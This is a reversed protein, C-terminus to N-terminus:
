PRLTSRLAIGDAWYAGSPGAPLVDYTRGRYPLRELAAVRSGDLADGIALSGIARGDAIPHGPSATLGRGDALTLRIVEHGAPAEVSSAELLPAAVRGGSAGLTWVLDGARLASVPVSGRPTDIRTTSALCIPCNPAAAVDRKLVHVTGDAIVRLEVREGQKDASAPRILLITGYADPGVPQLDVRKLDKWDHYVALLQADTLPVGPPINNHRLIAPWDPDAQLQAEHERALDIEEARAIPYFDPDCYWPRGVQEMVRYELEVVPLRSPLPTPPALPGVCAGALIPVLAALLRM